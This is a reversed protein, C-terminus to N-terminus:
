TVGCNKFVCTDKVSAVKSTTISKKCWTTMTNLM